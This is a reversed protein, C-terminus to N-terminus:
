PTKLGPKCKEELVQTTESWPAQYLRATLRQFAPAISAFLNAVAGHMDQRLAQYMRDDHEDRM